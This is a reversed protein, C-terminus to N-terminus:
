THVIKWKAPQECDDMQDDPCLRNFTTNPDFGLIERDDQIRFSFTSVHSGTFYRAHACIWQDIISVGGDKYKQLVDDTPIYQKLVVPGNEIKVSRLHKSLEKVESFPIILRELPTRSLDLRRVM